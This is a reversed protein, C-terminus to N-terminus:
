RLREAADADSLGSLTATPAVDVELRPPKELILLGCPDQGELVGDEAFRTM